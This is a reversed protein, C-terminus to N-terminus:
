IPMCVHMCANDTQPGSTGKYSRRASSCAAAPHYIFQQSRGSLPGSTKSSHPFTPKVHICQSNVSQNISHSISQRCEISRNNAFRAARQSRNDPSQYAFPLVSRECVWAVRNARKHTLSGEYRPITILIWQKSQQENHVVTAVSSHIYKWPIRSRRIVSVRRSV